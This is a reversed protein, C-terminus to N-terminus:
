LSYETSDRADDAVLSLKITSKHLQETLLEVPKVDSIMHHELQRDHDMLAQVAPCRLVKGNVTDWQGVLSM